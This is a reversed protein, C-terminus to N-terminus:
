PQDEGGVDDPSDAEIDAETDIEADAEDTTTGADDVSEAPEADPEAMAVVLVHRARDLRGLPRADARAFPEGSRRTVDRIEAVPLGPPFVGGLGSTILVDGPVLDVNMPLDTLRLSNIQGTGYAVTRLDTRRVRVPLAHDPDSILIVQASNRALRDVQGLVGEGDIVPQGRELGDRRGRNIMVRHSYPNLDVNMLEAARYALQVRGTADLLQRLEANERDLEELMILEASQDRVQQELLAVRDQLEHRTRLEEGLRRGFAFPAEIALLVPEVVATARNRIDAVYGGRYDLVMLIIALLCYIMLRATRAALDSAAVTGWTGLPQNM